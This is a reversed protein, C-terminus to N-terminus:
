LIYKYQSIVSSLRFLKNSPLPETFPNGRLHARVYCYFIGNRFLDTFVVIPTNTSATNEIQDM